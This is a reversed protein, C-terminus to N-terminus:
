GRCARCLAYAGVPVQTASAGASASASVSLLRRVQMHTTDAKDINLLVQYPPPRVQANAYSRESGDVDPDELMLLMCELGKERLCRKLAALDRRELGKGCFSLLAKRLALKPILLREAFRPADVVAANDPAQWPHEFYVKSLKFGVMVGDAIVNKGSCCSFFRSYDPDQLTILNFWADQFMDRGHGTKMTDLLEGPVGALRWTRLQDERRARCALM